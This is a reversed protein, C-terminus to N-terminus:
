RLCQITGKQVSGAYVPCPLLKAMKEAHRLQREEEAQNLFVATHLEELNLHRAALEPTVPTQPDIGLNQCFLEHRHVVECAPEGIGSLGVVALIQNASRPIVPEHEAHAKLPLQRAGDAEVLVYDALQALVPIRLKPATLKGDEAPSAVCVCCLTQLVTKIQAKSETLLLPMDEPPFFHTTTCVIVTGDQRLESALRLLLSTKGGSGIIATVGKEIQLTDCFRM